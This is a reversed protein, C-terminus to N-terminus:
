ESIDSVPGGESSSCDGSARGSSVGLIEDRRGGELADGGESGGRFSDRSRGGEAVGGDSGGRRDEVAVPEGGGDLGGGLM